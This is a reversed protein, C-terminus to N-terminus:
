KPIPQTDPLQKAQIHKVNRKCIYKKKKKKKKKKKRAKKM